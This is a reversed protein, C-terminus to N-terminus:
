VFSICIKGDYYGGSLDEGDIGKDDLASDGRWPIKNDEPLKGSRQAEYFLLSLRLAESYNYKSWAPGSAMTMGQNASSSGLPIIASSVSSPHSTLVSLLLFTTIYHLLTLSPKNTPRHDM